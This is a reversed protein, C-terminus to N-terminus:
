GAPAAGTRSPLAASGLRLHVLLWAQGRRGKRPECAYPSFGLAIYLAMAPANPAFCSVRVEGIRHDVRARAVMREVLYRGIGEGRRDPDVIVNGVFCHDADRFGYLNAYGVVRDRELVVTPSLRGRLARRLQDPTLPYEARPAFLFLEDPDRAFSSIRELDEPLLDRWSLENEFGM